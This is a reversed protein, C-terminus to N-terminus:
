RHIASSKAQLTIQYARAGEASTTVRFIIQGGCHSIERFEAGVNM